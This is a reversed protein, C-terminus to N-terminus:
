MATAKTSPNRRKLARLRSYSGGAGISTSLNSGSVKATNAKNATRESRKSAASM